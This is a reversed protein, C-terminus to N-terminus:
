EAWAARSGLSLHVVSSVPLSPLRFRLLTLQLPFAHLPDAGVPAPALDSLVRLLFECLRKFQLEPM